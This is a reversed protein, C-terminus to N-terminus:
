FLYWFNFAQHVEYYGGLVIKEQVPATFQLCSGEGFFHLAGKFVSKGGKAQKTHIVYSSNEYDIMKCEQDAPKYNNLVYILGKKRLKEIEDFCAKENVHLDLLECKLLKGYGRSKGAWFGLGMLVKQMSDFFCSFLDDNYIKVYVVYEDWYSVNPLAYPVTEGKWFRPTMNKQENRLLNWPAKQGLVIDGQKEFAAKLTPSEMRITNVIKQQKRVLEYELAEELMVKNDTKPFLLPKPLEEPFMANSFVFPVTDPGLFSQFVKELKNFDLAFVYSLLTDSEIPTLLGTKFRLVIKKINM